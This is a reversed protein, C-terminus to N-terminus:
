RQREKSEEPPLVVTIADFGIGLQSFYRALAGDPLAKILAGEQVQREPETQALPNM